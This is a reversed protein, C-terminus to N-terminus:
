GGRALELYMRQEDEYEAQEAEQERVWNEFMTQEYVTCEECEEQLWHKLKGCECTVFGHPDVIEFGDAKRAEFDVSDIVQGVLTVCENGTCHTVKCWPAFEGKIVEVTSVRTKVRIPATMNTM